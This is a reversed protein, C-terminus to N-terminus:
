LRSSLCLTCVVLCPHWREINTLGLERSTHNGPIHELEAQRRTRRSSLASSPTICYRYLRGPCM